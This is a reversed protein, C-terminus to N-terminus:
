ENDIDKNDKRELSSYIWFLVLALAMLFWQFAYGIHKQPSINTNTWNTTLSWDSEPKLRVIYPFVKTDLVDEIRNIDIWQVVLPWANSWKDEDLLVPMGLPVHINGNLTVKGRISTMKPLEERKRSGMVWGRNVLVTIGKNTILPLIVDYGVKGNNIRNDLFIVRSNDFNGELLVPTYSLDESLSIEDIFKPKLKSKLRYHEQLVKKEEARDLQWFGLSLLFPIILTIFILIKNNSNWSFNKIM